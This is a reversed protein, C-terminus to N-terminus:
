NKQLYSNKRSLIGKKLFSYQAINEIYRYTLETFILMSLLQCIWMYSQDFNLSKYITIVVFWSPIHCCYLSYSRDAISNVIKSNITSFFNIELSAILVMTMSIITAATFKFASMSDFYRACTILSFILIATVLTKKYISTSSLKMKAVDLSNHIIYIVYGGLLSDFRFMFMNENTPIRYFSNIFIISCAIYFCWKKGLYFFSFTFLIFYQMELALAWMYGFASPHHGETFNRIFFISAFFKETMVLTDLWVGDTTFLSFILPISIWFLMAPFLRYIKKKILKVTERLSHKFNVRENLNIKFLTKTLFFGALVFLLEVGTETDSHSQIWKYFHSYSETYLVGSHLFVIMIIAIGRLSHLEKNM